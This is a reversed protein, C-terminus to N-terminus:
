GLFSKELVARNIQGASFSRGTQLNFINVKCPADWDRPVLAWDNNCRAFIDQFQMGFIQDNKAFPIQALIKEIEQDECRVYVNSEQGYILCDNVRGYAIMEDDVVSVVPTIGNAQIIDEMKFGRDFLTPLTQEVNRACVQIAGVLTGTKAVVVYLDQPRFGVEEAIYTTLEATPLETTQIMAVVKQARKDRYAVARACYDMGTVSRIPGSISINKGEHVIRWLAVHSSMEAVAPRDVHIKVAPVWYENIKMKNFTLVGLGGLGIETFYKGALWGGPYNVGMDLVTAGNQLRIVGINLEEAQPIVMTEIIQAANNNLSLDNNVEAM